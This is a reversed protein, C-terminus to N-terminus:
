LAAFSHTCHVQHCFPKRQFPITITAWLQVHSLEIWQLVLQNTEIFRRRLHGQPLLVEEIDQCRFYM